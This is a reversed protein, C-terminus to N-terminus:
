KQLSCIIWKKEYIYLKIQVNPKTFLSFSSFYFNLCGNKLELRM